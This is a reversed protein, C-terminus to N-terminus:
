TKERHTWNFPDLIHKLLPQTVNARVTCDFVNCAFCVCTFVNSGKNNHTSELATIHLTTTSTGESRVFWILEILLLQTEQIYGTTYSFQPTCHLHHSCTRGFRWSDCVFRCLTMVRSVVAKLVVFRFSATGNNRCSVARGVHHTHPCSGSNRSAKNVIHSCLGPLQFKKIWLHFYQLVEIIRFLPPPGSKPYNPFEAQRSLSCYFLM